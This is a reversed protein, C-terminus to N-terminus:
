LSYFLGIFIYILTARTLVMSHVQREITFTLSGILLLLKKHLMRYLAMPLLMGYLVAFLISPAFDGPFLVGGVPSPFM